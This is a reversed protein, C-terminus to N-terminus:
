VNLLMDIHAIINDIDAKNEPHYKYDCEFCHRLRELDYKNMQSLREKLLENRESHWAINDVKDM